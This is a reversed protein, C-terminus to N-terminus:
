LFTTRVITIKSITASPTPPYKKAFLWFKKAFFDVVELLLEEVSFVGDLAVFLVEVLEFLEFEEAFLEVGVGTGVSGLGLGCVSSGFVVFPLKVTEATANRDPALKDTWFITM